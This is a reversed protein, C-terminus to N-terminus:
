RNRDNCTKLDCRDSIPQITVAPSMWILETNEQEKLYEATVMMKGMMLPAPDRGPHCYPRWVGIRCVSTVTAATTKDFRPQTRVNLNRFGM